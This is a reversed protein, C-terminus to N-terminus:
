FRLELTIGYTRPVGMAYMIASRLNTLDIADARYAVDTLNRVWGAVSVSGNPTTYGLRLNVLWLPKQGVFDINEPSFYVQDKYSWDLRPTINGRGGLELPWQAYGVFSLEPANILQNGSFDDFIINGPVGTDPRVDEFDTYTGKLLGFSLFVQFTELAPPGWGELPRMEVELEMGYLEADSANLLTPLPLGTSSNRIQFVQIDDYDYYFAAGNIRIRQDWWMTKGGIEFATVIEPDVPSLLDLGSELVTDFTDLILGNIHPGKWGRSVKAYFTVDEYPKYSISIDGSPAQETFDTHGDPANRCFGDVCPPPPNYRQYIVSQIDFDRHDVNWRVGGEISFQDSPEWSLYTYASGYLTKQQYSQNQVIIALGSSFTNAVELEEYLFNGGAQWSFSGGNDWYVRFDESAQWASNTALVEVGIQPGGDLDLGSDRQNWEYGAVNRIEFNGFTMEGLLSVGFLDVADPRVFDYDGAYPDGEEPSVNYLPQGNSGLCGRGLSPVAGTQCAASDYDRYPINGAGGSAPAPTLTGDLTRSAPFNQFQRADGRNQGGHINLLWDHDENPQFRFLARAAWNDTDNVWKDVPAPEGAIWGHGGGSVPTLTGITAYLPGSPLVFLPESDGNFCQRNIRDRFTNLVGTTLPPATAAYEEFACRNKTYGDQLNMRGSIRTSLLDPILPVEVAGEVERQNFRGYTLRTYGNFDGVPRRSSVVIAGASANRGYLSGQPGRLIEVQQIDFLQALQGVPSNMYIGDNYVAVASSSNANFDRLGVGRIFLTPSTAAYPSRIELNPTFQAIDQINQAGLAQLYQEDFAAVSIAAEQLPTDTGQSTIVIEEMGRTRTAKDDAAEEVTDKDATDERPPLEQGLLRLPLLWALAAFLWCTAPRGIFSRNPVDRQIQNM